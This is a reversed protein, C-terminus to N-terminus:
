FASEMQAKGLADLVAKSDGSEVKKKKKDKEETPKSTTHKVAIPRSARVAPRTARPAPEAALDADAPAPAPAVAPAIAAHAAGDTTASPPASAPEFPMPVPTPLPAAAARHQKAELGVTMAIVVLSLSIMAWFPRGMSRARAPAGPSIVTRSPTRTSIEVAIEGTTLEQAPAREFRRDVDEDVVRAEPARVLVRPVALPRGGGAFSAPAWQRTLTSRQGDMGVVELVEHQVGREM